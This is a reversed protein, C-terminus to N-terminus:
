KVRAFYNLEETGLIEPHFIKILDSLIRDPYATGEDWYPNGGDTERLNNNYIRGYEFSKFLAYRSNKKLIDAKTKIGSSNVLWIGADGARSFVTEFDLFITGRSNNNEWPYFAGADSFLIGAYSHGGPVGWSDGYIMNSLVVPKKGSTESFEEAYAKLANYREATNRFLERGKEERDLFLSLFVLWEARGLPHSELWGSTVIVPFGQEGLIAAGDYDGGTWPSFVADPHIAYLIETDIDRGEGTQKIKGSSVLEKVISLSTNKQLDIGKLKELEGLADLFVINESSLSVVREVPIKVFIRQQKEPLIDSEQSIDPKAGRYLYYSYEAGRENRVVVNRYNSYDIITFNEAYLNELISGERFDEKKV